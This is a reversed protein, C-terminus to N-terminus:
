GGGRGGGGTEGTGKGRERGGEWTVPTSFLMRSTAPLSHMSVSWRYLLHAHFCPPLSGVRGGGDREVSVVPTHAPSLM